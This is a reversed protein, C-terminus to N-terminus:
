PLKTLDNNLIANDILASTIGNINQTVNITRFVDSLAFAGGPNQVLTYQEETPVIAYKFNSNESVYEGPIPETLPLRIANFLYSDSNNTSSYLILNNDVVSPNVEYVRLDAQEFEVDYQFLIEGSSSLKLINIASTSFADSYSESTIFMNDESDLVINEFYLNEFTNELYWIFENTNVDYKHLDYDYGLQLYAGTSDQVIAKSDFDGYIPVTTPNVLFSSIINLNRDLTIVDTSYNDGGDFVWDGAYGFQLYGQNNIIGSNYLTSYDTTNSEVKINALMTLNSDHSIINPLRDGEGATPLESFLTYLVDDTGVLSKNFQYSPLGAQNPVTDGIKTKVEGLIVGESDVKIVIMWYSSELPGLNNQALFISSFYMFDSAEVISLGRLGRTELGPVGSNMQLSRTFLLEGEPNFKSLNTTETLATSSNVTSTTWVNGSSDKSTFAFRNLNEGFILKPFSQTQIWSTTPVFPPSPVPDCCEYANKKQWRGEQPKQGKKLINSGPIIRGRGDYRVMTSFQGRQDRSGRGM